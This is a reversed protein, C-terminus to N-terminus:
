HLHCRVGRAARRHCFRAAGASRSQPDHRRRPTGDGEGGMRGSSQIGRDHGRAPEVGRLGLDDAVRFARIHTRDQRRRVAMHRACESPRGIPQGHSGSVCDNRGALVASHRFPRRIPAPDRPRLSRARSTPAGHLADALPRIRLASDTNGPRRARADARGPTRLPNGRLASGTGRGLGSGSRTRKPDAPPVGQRAARQGRGRDDAGGASEGQRRGSPRGDHRYRRLLSLDSGPPEHHRRRGEGFRRRRDRLGGREWGRPAGDRAPGAQEAQPLAVPDQAAPDGGPMPPEPLRRHAGLSLGGDAQRDLAPKGRRRPLRRRVRREAGRPLGTGGRGAPPVEAPCRTRENRSAPPMGLHRRQVPEFEAYTPYRGALAKRARQLVRGGWARLHWAFEAEPAAAQGFLVSLTGGVGTGVPFRRRAGYERKRLAKVFEPDALAFEPLPRRKGALLRPYHLTCRLVFWAVPNLDSAVTECGLRMAELPIAGGGAFPDLVRPTRGGFADRIEARLRALEPERERGWHLIGGRTEEKLKGGRTRVEHLTGAIRENLRRRKEPTGPDPLLTALLAARCAALPRRAPWIHLTSIHGHRVNKEHVSDLSAERM